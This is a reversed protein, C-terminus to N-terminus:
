IPYSFRLKLPISLLLPFSLISSAKGQLTQQRESLWFVVARAVQLFHLNLGLVLGHVICVLRSLASRDISV